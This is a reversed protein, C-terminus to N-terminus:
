SVYVMEIAAANQIVARHASTTTTLLFVRSDTAGTAALKKMRRAVM